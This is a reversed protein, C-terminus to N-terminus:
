LVNLVSTGRFNLRNFKKLMYIGQQCAVKRKYNMNTLLRAWLDKKKVGGSCMCSVDAQSSMLSM